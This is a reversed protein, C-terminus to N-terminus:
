YSNGLAKYYEITRKFSLLQTSSINKVDVYNSGVLKVKATKANALATIIDKNTVDINDDFWETIGSEDNDRKMNVPTYEFAKGDILFQCKDIFLWTDAHYQFVFRLNNKSFYCYTGNQNRYPASAKPTIWTTKDESFEDSKHRFFPKLEKIKISDVATLIKTDVVVAATDVVIAATDVVFMENVSSEDPSTQKCSIFTLITLAIIIKKM